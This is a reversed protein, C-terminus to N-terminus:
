VINNGKQKKIRKINKGNYHCFQRMVPLHLLITEGLTRPNNYSRIVGVVVMLSVFYQLKRQLKWLHASLSIAVQVFSIKGGSIQALSFGIPMRNTPAVANASVKYPRAGDSVLGVQTRCM